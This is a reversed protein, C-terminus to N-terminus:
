FSGNCQVQVVMNEWLSFGIVDELCLWRFFSNSAVQLTASLDSGDNELSVDGIDVPPSHCLLIPVSCLPSIVPAAIPMYTTTIANVSVPISTTATSAIADPSIIPVHTDQLVSSPDHQAM